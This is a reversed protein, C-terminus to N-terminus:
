RAEAVEEDSVFLESTKLKVGDFRKTLSKLAKDGKKSVKDIIEGVSDRVEDSPIARRKLRKVFAAYGPDRYSVTKM